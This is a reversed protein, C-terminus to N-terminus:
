EFNKGMTKLLTTMQNGYVLDGGSVDECGMQVRHRSETTQRCQTMAADVVSNLISGFLKRCHQSEIGIGFRKRVCRWFGDESQTNKRNNPDM